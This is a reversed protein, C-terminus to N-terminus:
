GQMYTAVCCGVTVVSYICQTCATILSSDLGSSLAINIQLQEQPALVIGTQAGAGDRLKKQVRALRRRLDRLQAAGRRKM